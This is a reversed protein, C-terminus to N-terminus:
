GKIVIVYAGGGTPHGAVKQRLDIRYVEGPKAGPIPAVELRLRGGKGPPVKPMTLVMAKQSLDGGSRRAWFEGEPRVSVRVKPRAVLGLRFPSRFKAEKAIALSQRDLKPTVGEAARAIAPDLGMDLVERPGIQRMTVRVEIPAAFGMVNKAVFDLSVPKGAGGPGPGGGPPESPQPPPPPPPMPVIWMNKWIINNDRAVDWPWVIPDLTAAAFPDDGTDVIAFLCCHQPESVGPTWPIPGAVVTNPPNGLTTAPVSVSATGIDHWDTHPMGGTPDSWYVRVTAGTIALTDANHVRVWLQNPQARVPNEHFTGGSNNCWLDPSLYLDIGPPEVLRDDSAHDKVWADGKGWIPTVRWYTINTGYSAPVTLPAHIYEGWPGWKSQILAPQNAPSLSWVRGTHTITNSADRYCIVDGVRVNPPFVQTGNANLINQVDSGDDIWCQRPNFTFAWCNYRRTPLLTESTHNLRIYEVPQIGPYNVLANAQISAIQTATLEGYDVELHSHNITVNASTLLVRHTM